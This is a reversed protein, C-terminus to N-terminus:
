PRVRYCISRGFPAREFGDHINLTSEAGGLFLYGDPRMVKRVRELVERKTTTDFYILVNRLFVIDYAGMPPFPTALNLTRFEVMRRLEDNVQWETGSRTFHKVLMPAPLGRNVELQSYRAARARTLMEESLDTALIQATYGPHGQFAEQLAMAITFPEQGSSAAGCWVSLRRATARAAIMEPLVHQSLTNWPHVDRFWSTENTTLADVVKARLQGNPQNRMQTLLGELTPAGVARALPLLRSEVLYEKGPELVIASDARVLDSVYAFDHSTITM